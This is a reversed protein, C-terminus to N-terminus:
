GSPRPAAAYRGNGRPWPGSVFHGAPMHGVTRDGRDEGRHGGRHEEGRERGGRDQARVRGGHRLVRRRRRGGGRSSARSAVIAAGESDLDDRQRRQVQGAARWLFCLPALASAPRGRLHGADSREGRDGRDGRRTRRRGPVGRRGGGVGRRSLRRLLVKSVEPHCPVGPRGGAASGATAPGPGRRRARRRARRTPPRPGCRRRGRGSVAARSPAPRPDPAGSPRRRSAARWAAM